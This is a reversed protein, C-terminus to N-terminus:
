GRPATTSVVPVDVLGGGLVAPDRPVPRLILQGTSDVSDPSGLRVYSADLLVRQMETPGGKLGLNIPGLGADLSLEGSQREVAYQQVTLVGDQQIRAILEPSPLSTQPQSLSQIQSARYAALNEPDTLDLTFSVMRETSGESDFKLHASGRQDNGLPATAGVYTNNTGGRYDFDGTLSGRLVYRIPQGSADYDVRTQAVGTIGFNQTMSLAQGGVKGHGSNTDMWSSQGSSKWMFSRNGEAGVVGSAGLVPGLGVDASAKGTVGFAITGEDAPRFSAAPNLPGGIGHRVIAVATEWPGEPQIADIFAQAEARSGFHYRLAYRATGGAEAEAYARELMLRDAPALRSLDIKAGASWKAGLGYDDSLTITYRGYADQSVSIGGGRRVRVGGITVATGFSAESMTDTVQMIGRRWPAGQGLVFRRPMSALVHDLHQEEAYVKRMAESGLATGAQIMQRVASARQPAPVAQAERHLRCLESLYHLVVRNANQQSRVLADAGIELGDAAFRLSEASASLEGEWVLRRFAMARAAAGTWDALRSDGETRATRWVDDLTAAETRWGSAVARLAPPDGILRQRRNEISQAASRFEAPVQSVWGPGLADATM